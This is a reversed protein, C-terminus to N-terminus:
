KGESRRPGYYAVVGDLFRESFERAAFAWKDLQGQNSVVILTPGEEEQIYKSDHVRCLIELVMSDEDKPAAEQAESMELDFTRRRALKQYANLENKAGVVICSNLKKRIADLAAEADIEQGDEEGSNQDPDEDSSPVPDDDNSPDPEEDSSQDSSEDSSTDSSEDSGSPGSDEEISHGDGGHDSHERNSQVSHGNGSQGWPRSNSPGAVNTPATHSSPPPHNSSSGVQPRPWNPFRTTEPYIGWASFESPTSRGSDYVPTSRQTSNSGARFLAM